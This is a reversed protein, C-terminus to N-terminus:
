NSETRTGGEVRRPNSEFRGIIQVRVQDRIIQRLSRVGRSDALILFGLATTSCFAGSKRLLLTVRHVFNEIADSPDLLDFNLSELKSRTFFVSLM